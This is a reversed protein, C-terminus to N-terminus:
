MMTEVNLSYLHNSRTSACIKEIVLVYIVQENKCVSAYSGAPPRTGTTECSSWIFMKTDFSIIRNNVSRLIFIREKSTFCYGSHKNFLPSRVWTPASNRQKVDAWTLNSLNLTRIKLTTYSFKSTSAVMFFLHDDIAGACMTDNDSTILGYIFATWELM